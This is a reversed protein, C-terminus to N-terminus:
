MELHAAALTWLWRERFQKLFPPIIFEGSIQLKTPVYSM